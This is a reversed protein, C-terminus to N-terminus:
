DREVGAVDTEIEELYLSRDRERLVDEGKEEVLKRDQIFFYELDLVVMEVIHAM